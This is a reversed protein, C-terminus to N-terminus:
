CGWFGVVTWVDRLVAKPPEWDFRGSQQLNNAKSVLANAAPSRSDRNLAVLGEGTPGGPRGDFVGGNKIAASATESNSKHPTLTTSEAPGIDPNKALTTGFQGSHDSQGIGTTSSGDPSSAPSSDKLADRWDNNGPLLDLGSTKAPPTGPQISGALGQVGNKLDAAALADQQRKAEAEQKAQQEQQEKQRALEERQNQEAQLQAQRAAQLQAKQESRANALKWSTESYNTTGDRPTARLAKEYLMVALPYNGIQEAAAAKQCIASAIAFGINNAIVRSSPDIRYAKRFLREALVFDNNNYYQLGQVSVANALNRRMNTDAPQMQLAIRYLREAESFNDNNYALTGQEDIARALNRAMVPDYPDEQVALRYLREAEVYHGNNFAENGQNNLQVSPSPAVYQPASYNPSGGCPGCGGGCSGQCVADRQPGALVPNSFALFFCIIRASRLLISSLVVSRSLKM